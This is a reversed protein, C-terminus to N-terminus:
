EKRSRDEGNQGSWKLLALRRSRNMHRVCFGFSLTAVTASCPACAAGAFAGEFFRALWFFPAGLALFLALGGFGAWAWRALAFFPAVSVRALLFACTIAIIFRAL